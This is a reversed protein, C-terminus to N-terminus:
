SSAMGLNRGAILRRCRRRLDAVIWGLYLNSGLSVLLVLFTLWFWPKAPEASAGQSTTRNPQTSRNANAPAAAANGSAVTTAGLAPSRALRATSEAIPAPWRDGARKGLEDRYTARPLPAVRPLIENGVVIRYARVEGANRPVDNQLPRGRRLADLEYPNLQIIYETGGNPLPQWGVDSGFAAAAIFLSLRIM